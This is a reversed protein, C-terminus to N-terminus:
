IVAIEDIANDVAIQPQAGQDHHGCHIRNLFEPYQRAVIGGFIACSGSCDRDDLGFGAGVRKVAAGVLKQTVVFEIGVRKEVIPDPSRFWREAPILVASRQNRLGSGITSFRTPMSNTTVCFSTPAATFRTPAPNPRSSRSQEPLQAM